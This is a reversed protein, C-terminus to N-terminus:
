SSPEPPTARTSIQITTTSVTFTTRFTTAPVTTLNVNKRFMAMTTTIATTTTTTAVTHEQSKM